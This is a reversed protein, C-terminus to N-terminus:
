NLMNIVKLDNHGNPIKLLVFFDAIKKPVKLSFKLSALSNSYITTFLSFHFFIVFGTTMYISTRGHHIKTTSKSDLRIWGDDIRLTTRQKPLYYRKQIVSELIKKM